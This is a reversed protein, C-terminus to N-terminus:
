ALRWIRVEAYVETVGFNAAVGMGDTARTTNCRHQLEFTKEDDITFQGRVFSRTQSAGAGSYESTGVLTDSGDTANRLKARHEGTLFAPADASVEYTGAPLTFQNSSLTSGIEDTTETNLTRTQWSGSTFGGADTGATQEERLHLLPRTARPELTDYWQKLLRVVDQRWEALEHFARRAREADETNVNFAANAFRLEKTPLSLSM